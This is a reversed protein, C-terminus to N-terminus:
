RKGSHRPQMLEAVTVMGETADAVRWKMSDSLGRSGKLYREITPRTCGILAAFDAPKIAKYSLYQDLKMSVVYDSNQSADIRNIETKTCNHM